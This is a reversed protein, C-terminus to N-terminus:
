DSDDTDSDSDGDSDSDTNYPSPTDDDPKRVLYVISDERTKFLMYMAIDVHYGRADTELSYIGENRHTTLSPFLTEFFKHRYRTHLLWYLARLSTWDLAHPDRRVQSMCEWMRIIHIGMLNAVARLRVLPYTENTPDVGPPDEKSPLMILHDHERFLMTKTAKEFVHIIRRLLPDGLLDEYEARAEDERFASLAQTLEDKIVNTISYSTATVGAPATAFRENYTYYSYARVGLEMYMRKAAINALAYGYCANFFSTRNVSDRWHPHKWVEPSTWRHWLAPGVSPNAFPAFIEFPFVRTMVDYWFDSGADKCGNYNTKSLSCWNKVQECVSAKSADSRSIADLVLIVEDVGIKETVLGLKRRRFNDLALMYPDELVGSDLVEEDSEENPLDRDTYGERPPEDESDSPDSACLADDMCPHAKTEARLSLGGLDPLRM